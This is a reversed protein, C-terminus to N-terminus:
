IHCVLEHTHKKVLDTAFNSRLNSQTYSIWFITM